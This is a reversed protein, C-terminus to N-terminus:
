ECMSELTCSFSYWDTEKWKFYEKATIAPKQTNLVTIIPIHGRRPAGTLLEVTDDTFQNNVFRTVSDTTIFLDIFSSGNDCLFTPSNHKYIVDLKWKQLFELLKNGATNQTHDGWTEHRANLDGILILGDVKLASMQKMINSTADLIELLKDNEKPPSYVSCIFYRHGGIKTISVLMDATPPELETYRTFQINNKVIMAVGRHRSNAANPKLICKMDPFAHLPLEGIKTESLCVIDLKQSWIYRELAMITNKSMGNINLQCIKVAMKSSKM